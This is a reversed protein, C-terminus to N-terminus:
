ENEDWPLRDPFPDVMAKGGKWSILRCMWEEMDSLAESESDWGRRLRKNGLVSRWGWCDAAWDERARQEGKETEVRKRDEM